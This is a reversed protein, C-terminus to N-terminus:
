QATESIPCMQLGLWDRFSLLPASLVANLTPNESSSTDIGQREIIQRLVGKNSAVFSIPQRKTDDCHNGAEFIIWHLLDASSAHGWVSDGDVQCAYFLHFRNNWYICGQPDMPYCVSEPAIFHYRPRHPDKRFKDWQRLAGARHVRGISRNIRAVERKVKRDNVFAM